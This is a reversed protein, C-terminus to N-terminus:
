LSIDDINYLRAASDAITLLEGCAVDVRPSLTRRVVDDFSRLLEKCGM